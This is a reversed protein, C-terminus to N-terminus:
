AAGDSGIVLADDSEFYYAPVDLNRNAPSGKLVRGSTDFRSGHCPCYFGNSLDPGLEADSINKFQPLCGFHTCIASLVVVDARRARNENRAYTPQISEVSDPDKLLARAQAADLARAPDRRVVWM